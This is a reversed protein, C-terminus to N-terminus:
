SPPAPPMWASAWRPPPTPSLGMDKKPAAKPGQLWPRLQRRHHTPRACGARPQRCLAAWCRRACRAPDVRLRAGADIAEAVAEITVAVAIQNCAKAVQGAGPGWHPHHDGMTAAGPPRHGAGRGQRGGHHDAHRQHRWIAARCRRMLFIGGPPPWNPLSTARRWAAITSMDIAILGPHAGHIATNVWCSKKGRGPYGLCQQHCDGGRAGARGPQAYVRAPCSWNPPAKRAVPTFRCRIAPPAASAACARGM